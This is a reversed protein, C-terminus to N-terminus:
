GRKLKKKEKERDYKLLRKQSKAQWIRFCIDKHEKSLRDQEAILQKVKWHAKQTEQHAHDFLVRNARQKELLAAIEGEQKIIKAEIEEM